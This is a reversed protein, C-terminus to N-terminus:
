SFDSFQVFAYTQQEHLNIKLLLHKPYIYVIQVELYEDTLLFQVIGHKM